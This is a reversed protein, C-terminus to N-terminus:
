GEISRSSSQTLTFTLLSPFELCFQRYKAAHTQQDSLKLVRKNKEFCLKRYALGLGVDRGVLQPFRPAPGSRRLGHKASGM